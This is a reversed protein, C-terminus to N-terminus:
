THVHPCNYVSVLTYSSIANELQNLLEYTVGLNNHSLQEMKWDGLSQAM